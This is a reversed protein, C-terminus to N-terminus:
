KARLAHGHIEREGHVRKQPVFESSARYHKDLKRALGGTSFFQTARGGDASLNRLVQYSQQDM